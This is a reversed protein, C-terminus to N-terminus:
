KPAGTNVTMTSEVFRGKGNDLEFDGLRAVLALFETEQQTALRAPRLLIVHWPSEVSERIMDELFRDLELRSLNMGDMPKLVTRRQRNVAMLAVAGHRVSSRALMARQIQETEKAARERIGLPSDSAQEVVKLQVISM